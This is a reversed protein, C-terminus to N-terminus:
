PPSPHVNGVHICGLTAIQGFIQELLFPEPKEPLIKITEQFYKAARYYSKLDLVGSDPFTQRFERLLAQSLNVM